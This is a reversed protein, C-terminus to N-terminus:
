LTDKYIRTKEIAKRLGTISFRLEGSENTIRNLLPFEAQNHEIMSILDPYDGINKMKHPMACVLIDSYKTNYRLKEANFGPLKDFDEIIEVRNPSIGINKFTKYIDNKNSNIAGIILVKSNPLYYSSVIEKEEELNYKKLVEELIGFRNATYLEKTIKDTVSSILSAMQKCDLVEM